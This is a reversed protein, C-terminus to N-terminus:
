TPHHFVKFQTIWIITLLMNYNYLVIDAVYLMIGTMIGCEMDNFLM